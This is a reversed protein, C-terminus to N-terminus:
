LCSKKLYVFLVSEFTILLTVRWLSSNGRAKKFNRLPKSNLWQFHKLFIETYWSQPIINKANSKINVWENGVPTSSPYMPFSHTLNKEQSRWAALVELRCTFRSSGTNIGIKPVSKLFPINNRKEYSFVLYVMWFMSYFIPLIYSVEPVSWVWM